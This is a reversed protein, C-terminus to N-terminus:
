VVRTSTRSFAASALFPVAFGAGLLLIWVGVAVLWFYQPAFSEVLPVVFMLGASRAIWQRRGGQGEYFLFCNLIVVAPILLVSLDHIFAYHSVLVACPIALLLLHAKNSLRYGRFATWGLVVMSLLGTLGQLWAASLHGASVGFILGYLNAMMQVPVAYRLLHANPTVAGAMSFLSEVYLLSQEKGVLWVSVSVLLITSVSFGLAFRWRRWLCFLLAIPFVIQFKFLGMGVLLGALIERDDTLLVFAGALLGTLLVSDQGQILAAAIPLFGLFPAVPLWSYLARLDQMWPLLTFFVIGLAALNTALFAFYAWRYPLRSLPSLVLAEYAPRVFPLAIAAPSVQEDQYHKQADYDYLQYAHGTRVMYAAAYLQRFDARGGLFISATFVWTWLHAGVLYAPIGLLCARVYYPVSPAAFQIPAPDAAIPMSNAAREPTRKGAFM